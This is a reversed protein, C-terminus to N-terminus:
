DSDTATVAVGNNLDTTGDGIANVMHISSALPSADTDIAIVHAHLQMGLAGGNTFYNAADVDTQTDTSKYMWVQHGGGIGQAVLVPPLSTSYAM